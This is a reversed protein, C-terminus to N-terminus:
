LKIKKYHSEAIKENQGNLKKLTIIKQKNDNEFSSEFDITCIELDSTSLIKCTLQDETVEFQFKVPHDFSNIFRFDRYGYFVSADAGLPTYRQENHYLDVSHNYRELTKMNAQLSTHYIISAIQCLGGGYDEIVNGDIINIGERYGNKKSPAGVAEWFSFIQGPKIELKEIAKAANLINHIKNTKNKLVAADLIPQNVEFSSKFQSEVSNISKAFKKLNGEQVDSIFRLILRFKLKVIRPVLRKIFTRLTAMSYDKFNKEHHDQASLKVTQINQM